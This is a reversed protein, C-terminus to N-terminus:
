GPDHRSTPTLTVFNSLFRRVDATDLRQSRSTGPSFGRGGSCVGKSAVGVALQSGDFDMFQPSGSDGACLGGDTTGGLLLTHGTLGEFPATGAQRYGPVFLRTQGEHVVLEAGYGVLTAHRQDNRDLALLRDLERLGPLTVPDVGQFPTGEFLVVAVDDKRTEPDFKPHVIAHSSRLVPVTVRFPFDDPLFGPEYVPAAEEGAQLTVVWQSGPPVFAATICHAATLFVSETLVAGTCLAVPLRRGEADPDFALLGVNPHGDRDPTGNIVAGAPTAFLALLLGAILLRAKM